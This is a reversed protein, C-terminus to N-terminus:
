CGGGVTEQLGASGPEDTDSTKRLFSLFRDFQGLLLCPLSLHLAVGHRDILRHCIDESGLRLRPEGTASMTSTTTMPMPTAPSSTAFLKAPAPSATTPM